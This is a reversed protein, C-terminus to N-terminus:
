SGPRVGTFPWRERVFTAYPAAMRPPLLPPERRTIVLLAGDVRPVPRFQGRPVKPGRRVEWWPVWTASLLTAPPVAARKTAVEDQVILDARWMPITPDELLRRLIATTEGFPICGIVRFPRIPLRHRLFDGEVVRVRGPGMGSAIDRLRAAWVPDIEVAIM